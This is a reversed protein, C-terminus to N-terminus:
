RTQRPVATAAERDVISFPVSLAFAKKNAASRVRIQYGDGTPADIPMAYQFGGINILSGIIRFAFVDRRVVDIQVVSSSGSDEWSINYSSGCAWTFNPRSPFLIKFTPISPAAKALAGPGPPVISFTETFSHVEPLKPEEAIVLIQYEDDPKTTEPVKYIYKGLNRVSKVITMVPEGRHYLYLGVKTVQISGSSQWRVSRAEGCSWPRGSRSPAEIRLMAQRRSKMKMARSLVENRDMPESFVLL